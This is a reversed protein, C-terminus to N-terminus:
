TLWAPGHLLAQTILGVSALYFWWLRLASFEVARQASIWGDRSRAWAYAALIAALLGHFALYGSIVTVAAGYAHSAPSPATFLPVALAGGAIMTGAGASVLLWARSDEARGQANVRAARWVSYFGAALGALVILPTVPEQALLAPPPWNPAVVWLFLYGFVLAGFFVGNAMLTFIMGWLTPPDAATPHLVATRGRGIDVPGADARLGSNWMWRWGCIVILVFALASL